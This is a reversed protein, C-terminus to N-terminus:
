TEHACRDHSGDHQQVLADLSDVHLMTTVSPKCGMDCTPNMRMISYATSCPVRQCRVRYARMNIVLMVRKDCQVVLVTLMDHMM